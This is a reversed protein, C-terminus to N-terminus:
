YHEKVAPQMSHLYQHVTPPDVELYRATQNHEICSLYQPVISNIIIGVPQLGVKLNKKYDLFSFMNLMAGFQWDVCQRMSSMSTDFAQKEPTLARPWIICDRVGYEPDGYICYM